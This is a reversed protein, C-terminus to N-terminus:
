EKIYTVTVWGAPAKDRSIIKGNEFRGIKISDGLAAGELKVYIDDSEDEIFWTGPFSEGASIIEISRDKGIEFHVAKQMDKTRNIQEASLKATDADIAVEEVVWVGALQEERSSCAAIFVIFSLIILLKIQANM